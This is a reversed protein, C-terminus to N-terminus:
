SMLEKLYKWTIKKLEPDSTMAQLSYVSLQRINNVSEGWGPEQEAFSVCVKTQNTVRVPRDSLSLAFRNKNIGMAGVIKEFLPQYQTEYEQSTLQSIFVIEPGNAVPSKVTLPLIVDEIGYVDQLFQIVEHSNQM